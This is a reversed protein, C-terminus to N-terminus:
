SVSCCTILFPRLHLDGLKDNDCAAFGLLDLRTACSRVCYITRVIDRHRKDRLTSRVLTTVALHPHYCPPLPAFLRPWAGHRRAGVVKSGQFMSTGAELAARWRGTDVPPFRPGAPTSCCTVCPKEWPVLGDCRGLRFAFFPWLANNGGSGFVM